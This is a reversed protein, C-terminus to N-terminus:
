STALYPVIKNNLNIKRIDKHEGTNKQNIRQTYVMLLLRKENKLVMEGYYRFGVSRFFRILSPPVECYVTKKGQKQTDLLIRKMLKSGLGNNLFHHAIIIESIYIKGSKLEWSGMGAWQGNFHIIHTNKYSITQNYVDTLNNWFMPSQQYMTLRKEYLEVQDQESTVKRIRIKTEM